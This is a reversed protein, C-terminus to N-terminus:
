FIYILLESTRSLFSIFVITFRMFQLQGERIFPVYQHHHVYFRLYLSGARGNENTYRVHDIGKIKANFTYCFGFTPLSFSTFDKASCIKGNYVCRILMSSLPFFFQDLSENRNLKMQFFDLLHRITDSSFSDPGTIQSLNLSNTYNIFPRIFRDYRVPALNCITFAPFYQPRENNMEVSTQTPHEFYNRIERGVFILTISVFTVFSVIWFLRNYRSRSRAIGPIGHASTTVAFERVISRRRPRVTNKSIFYIKRKFM